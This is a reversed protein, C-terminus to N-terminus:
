SRSAQSCCNPLGLTACTSRSSTVTTVASQRTSGPGASRESAPSSPTCSRTASTFRQREPSDSGRLHILLREGDCFICGAEAQDVESIAAIDRFSALLRVDVPVSIGAEQLLQACLRVVLEEPAGSWQHQDLFRRVLEDPPRSRRM